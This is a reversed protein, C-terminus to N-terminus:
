VKVKKAEMVWARRINGRPLVLTNRTAGDAFVQPAIAVVEANSRVIEGHIAGRVQDYEYDRSLQEHYCAWDVAEVKVVNGVTDWKKKGM